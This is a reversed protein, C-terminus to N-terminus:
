EGSAALGARRTRGDPGSAEFLEYARRSIAEFIEKMNEAADEFAVPTLTIPQKSTQVAMAQEAM